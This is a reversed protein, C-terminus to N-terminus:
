RIANDRLGRIRLGVVSDPPKRTAYSTVTALRDLTSAPCPVGYSSFRYQDLDNSFTQVSQKVVFYACLRNGSVNKVAMNRRENKFSCALFKAL